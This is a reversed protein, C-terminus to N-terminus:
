CKLLCFLILIFFNGTTHAESGARWEFNNSVKSSFWNVAANGGDTSLFRLFYGLLFSKGTRTKGNISYIVMQHDGVKDLIAKLEQVHIEVGTKKMSAITVPKSLGLISKVKSNM